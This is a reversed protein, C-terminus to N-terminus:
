LTWITPLGAYIQDHRVGNKNYFMDTVVDTQVVISSIVGRAIVQLMNYCLASVSFAAPPCIFSSRLGNAGLIVQPLACRQGSWALIFTSSRCPGGTVHAFAGHHASVGLERDM